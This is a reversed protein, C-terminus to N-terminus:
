PLSAVVLNRFLEDLELRLNTLFWRRLLLCCCGIISLITTVILKADRFHKLSEVLGACLKM